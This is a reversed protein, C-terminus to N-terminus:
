RCRGATRPIPFPLNISNRSSIRVSSSGAEWTREARSCSSALNRASSPDAPIATRASAVVPVHRRSTTIDSRAAPWSSAPTTTVPGGLCTNQRCVKEAAEAEGPCPIPLGESRSARPFEEPRSGDALLRLPFRRVWGPDDSGQRKRSVMRQLFDSETRRGDAGGRGRSPFTRRGDEFAERSGIRGEAM